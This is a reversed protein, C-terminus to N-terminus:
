REALFGAVGVLVVACPPTAPGAASACLPHARAEQEEAASCTVPPDTLPSTKM